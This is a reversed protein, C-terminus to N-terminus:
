KENEEPQFRELEVGSEHLIELSFDDPYGEQQVVTIKRTSPKDAAVKFALQLM